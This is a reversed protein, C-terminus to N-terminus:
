PHFIFQSEIVIEAVPIVQVFYFVPLCVISIRKCEIGRGPGKAEPMLASIGPIFFVALVVQPLLTSKEKFSLGM